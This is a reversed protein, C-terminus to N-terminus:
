LPLWNSGASRRGIACFQPYSSDGLGLVAYQLTPLKPARKSAIFEVLARADDPPDGDGQTSVVVVLLREKPLDKLPYLGSAYVRAALGAAEAARGLREAIRKGNGTQSGYVITLRPVADPRAAPTLDPDNRRPM